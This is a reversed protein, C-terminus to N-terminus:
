PSLSLRHARNRRSETQSCRWVFICSDKNIGWFAHGAMGGCYVCMHMCKIFVCVCVYSDLAARVPSVM